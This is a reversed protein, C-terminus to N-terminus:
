KIPCFNSHNCILGKLQGKNSSISVFRNESVLCPRKGNLYIIKTRLVFLLPLAGTWKVFDFFWMHPDFIRCFLNMMPKKNKKKSM